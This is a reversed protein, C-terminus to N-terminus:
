PCAVVTATPVGGNTVGLRYCSLGDPTKVVWGYGVDKIAADGGSIGLKAGPNTTGIGVNGSFYGNRWANSGSGFDYSNNSNPLLSSDFTAASIRTVATQLTRTLRHQPNNSKYQLTLAIQVTALGGPNEFKTVQFNGIEVLSNTLPQATGSGEQLYVATGSADAFIYTSDLTSSSYRLVLTSSAVGAPNEILSAGQVKREIVSSVFSTQQNLENTISQQSQVKISSSLINILFIASVSFIALYILVEILTFGERQKM